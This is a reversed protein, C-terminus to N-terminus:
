VCGLALRCEQGAPLFNSTPVYYYWLKILQVFFARDFTIHFFVSLFNM